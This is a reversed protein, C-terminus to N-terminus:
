KSIKVSTHTRNDLDISKEKFTKSKKPKITLKHIIKSQNISQFDTQCLKLPSKKSGPYKNISNKFKTIKQKSLSKFIKFKIKLGRNIFKSILILSKSLIKWIDKLNKYIKQLILIKKKSLTLPKIISAKSMTM